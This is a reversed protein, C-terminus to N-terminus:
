SVPCRGASAVCPKELPASPAHIRHYGGQGPDGIVVYPRLPQDGPSIGYSGRRGVLKSRVRSVDAGVQSAIIKKIGNNAPVRRGDRFIWKPRSGARLSWGTTGDDARPPIAVEVKRSGDQGDIIFSAGTAVPNLDSFNTGGPLDFEGSLVVGDNGPTADTGVRSLMLKARNRSARPCTPSDGGYRALAFSSNANAYTGATGATIIQGNRQLTLASTESMQPNIVAGGNGFTADLTGDPNL